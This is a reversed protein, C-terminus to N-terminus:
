VLIRDEVLKSNKIKESIFTLENIIDDLNYSVGEHNLMHKVIFCILTDCDEKKKAKENVLHTHMNNGNYTFIISDVFNKFIRENSQTLANFFDDNMKVGTELYAVVATLSYIDFKAEVPIQVGIAKILDPCMFQHSGMQNVETNIQELYSFDGIKLTFGNETGTVMKISSTNINLHIYNSEHFIELMQYLKIYHEIRKTQILKTLNKKKEELSKYSRTLLFVVYDGQKNKFPNKGYYCGIYDTSEPYNQFKNLLALEKNLLDNGEIDNIYNLKANVQVKKSSRANLYRYFKMSRIEYNQNKEEVKGKPYAEIFNKKKKYQYYNIDPNKKEEKSLKLNLDICKDTILTTKTYNTLYIVVTLFLTKKM